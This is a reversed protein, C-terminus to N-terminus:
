QPRMADGSTWEWWGGLASVSFLLRHPSHSHRTHLTVGVFLKALADTTWLHKMRNSSSAAPALYDNCISRNPQIVATSKHARRPRALLKRSQLTWYIFYFLIFLNASTISQLKHPLLHISRIHGLWRSPRTVFNLQADGGNNLRITAHPGPWTNVDCCNQLYTVEIM